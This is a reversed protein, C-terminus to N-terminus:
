LQMPRIRILLEVIQVKQIVPNANEKERRSMQFDLLLNVEVLM